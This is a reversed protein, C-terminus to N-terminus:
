CYHFIGPESTPLQVLCSLKCFRSSKCGMSGKVDDPISFNYWGIIYYLVGSLTIFLGSLTIFFALYNLLFARYHLLVFARYNLLFARYHLLFVGSLITFARYHLLQGIIYYVDQFIPMGVVLITHVASCITVRSLQLFARKM